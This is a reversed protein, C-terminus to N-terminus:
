HSGVRPWHTHAGFQVPRVHPGSPQPPNHAGPHVVLSDHLASPIHTQRGCHEAVRTQPGSPQPPDHPMHEPPATHPVLPAHTVVVVTSFQVSRTSLLPLPSM